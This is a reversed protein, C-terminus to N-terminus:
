RDMHAPLKVKDLLSEKTSQSRVLDKKLELLEEEIMMERERNKAKEKELSTYIAKRQGEILAIKKKLDEV